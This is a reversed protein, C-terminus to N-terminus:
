KTSTAPLLILQNTESFSGANLSYFYLGSALGAQLRDRTYNGAPLEESVFNSVTRGLVDYISLRAFLNTGSVNRAQLAEQAETSFSKDKMRQVLTSSEFYPFSM